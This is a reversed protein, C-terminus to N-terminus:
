RYLTAFNKLSKILLIIILLQLMFNEMLIGNFDPINKNQQQYALTSLTTIVNM